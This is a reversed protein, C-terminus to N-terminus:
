RDRGSSRDEQPHVQTEISRVARSLAWFGAPVRDHPTDPQLLPFLNRLPLPTPISLLTPLTPATLPTASPPAQPPPQASAEQPHQAPVQGQLQQDSRPSGLYTPPPVYNQSISAHIAQTFLTTKLRLPFSPATLAKSSAHGLILNDRQHAPQSPPPPKPSLGSWTYALLAPFPPVFTNNNSDLLALASARSGSCAYLHSSRAMRRSRSATTRTVHGLASAAPPLRFGARLSPHVAWTGRSEPLVRRPGATNAPCSTGNGWGCGRPRACIHSRSLLKWLPHQEHAHAKSELVSGPFPRRATHGLRRM